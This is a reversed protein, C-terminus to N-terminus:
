FGEAIIWNITEEDWMYANDLDDPYAVPAVWVNSEDLVWSPYPKPNIFTQKEYDYYGDKRAPNNSNIDTEIYEFESDINESHWSDVWNQTAVEINVVDGNSKNVKAFLKEM